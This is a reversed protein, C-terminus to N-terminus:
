TLHIFLIINRPVKDIFFLYPYFWPHHNIILQSMITTHPYYSGNLYNYSPSTPYVIALLSLNSTCRVHSNQFVQMIIFMEFYLSFSFQPECLTKDEFYLSFFSTCLVIVSDKLVEFYFWDDRLKHKSSHCLRKDCEEKGEQQAKSRATTYLM